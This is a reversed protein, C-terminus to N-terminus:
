KIILPLTTRQTSNVLQLYYLGPVLSSPLNISHNTTSYTISIRQGFSSILYIDVPLEKDKTNLFLQQDKKIPNPFVNWSELASSKYQVERIGLENKTGDLDFQTLRYYNSGSHPQPHKYNYYSVQQSFQKGSVTALQQFVRGDKSHELLFYDNDAEEATAWNISVINEQLRADFEILVVPLLQAGTVLDLPNPPTPSSSNYNCSNNICQITTSNNAFVVNNYDISGGANVGLIDASGGLSLDNFQLQAGGDITFSASNRLDTTGGVTFTGGTFNVQTNGSANFDNNIIIDGGISITIGGTLDFYITNVTGNLQLDIASGNVIIASASLNGGPALIFSAASTNGITLDGSVIFSGSANINVSAKKATTLNGNYTINHNITVNDGPWPASNSVDPIGNPTWNLPNNWDGDNISVYNTAHLITLSLFFFLFVPLKQKSM